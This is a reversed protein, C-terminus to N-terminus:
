MAKKARELEAFVKRLSEVSDYETIQIIESLPTWVITGKSEKFEEGLDPVQGVLFYRDALRRIKAKEIYTCGSDDKGFRRQTAVTLVKNGFDHEGGEAPPKGGQALAVGIAALVVSVLCVALVRIKM